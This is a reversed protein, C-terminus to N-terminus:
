EIDKIIEKIRRVRGEIRLPRRVSRLWELYGNKWAYILGLFLIGIFLFIEIFVLLGKGSLLYDRFNVIVPYVLILEVDFIIFLIAILYFRANFNIWGTGIPNEGCEYPMQKERTPNHPRVLGSVVLTVGVFLAGVVLFMLIGVYELM